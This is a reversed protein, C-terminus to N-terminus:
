KSKSTATLHLCRIHLHHKIQDICSLVFYGYLAVIFGLCMYLTTSNAKGLYAVITYLALPLIGNFRWSIPKCTLHAINCRTSFFSFSFGCLVLWDFCLSYSVCISFPITMSSLNNLSISLVARWLVVIYFFFFFIYMLPLLRQIYDFRTLSKNGRESPEVTTGSILPGVFSVICTVVIIVCGIILVLDIISVEYPFTPLLTHISQHVFSTGYVGAILYILSTCVLAESVGFLSSGCLLVGTYYEILQALAFACSCILFLTSSVRTVGLGTASMLTIIILSLNFSDCGHDFIQGLPSSAGLRRAQKGDLCDFVQYFTNAFAAYFYVWGPATGELYPDYYAIFLFAVINVLLGIITVANPALWDPLLYVLRGYIPSMFNDFPTYVGAHYKYNDLNKLDDETLFSLPAFNNKQSKEITMFNFPRYSHFHHIWPTYSYLLVYLVFTPSYSFHKTLYLYFLFPFFRFCNM